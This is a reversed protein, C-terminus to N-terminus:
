KQWSSIIGNDTYVYVGSGYVYQKHVKNPVVTTNIDQPKGWSLLLLSEPMGLTVQKNLAVQEYEQFQPNFKVFSKIKNIRELENKQSAKKWTDSLKKNLESLQTSKECSERDPFKPFGNDRNKNWVPSCNYKEEKEITYQGIKHDKILQQIESEVEKYVRSDQCTGTFGDEIEVQKYYLTPSKTHLKVGCTIKGYHDVKVEMKLQSKSSQTYVGTTACGQIFIVSILFLKRM